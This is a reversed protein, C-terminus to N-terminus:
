AVGEMPRLVPNCVQRGVQLSWTCSSLPNIQPDAPCCGTVLAPTRTDPQHLHSQPHRPERKYPPHRGRCPWTCDQGPGLVRHPPLPWSGPPGKRWGPRGKGRWCSSSAGAPLPHPGWSPNQGNRRLSHPVTPHRDIWIQPKLPTRGEKSPCQPGQTRKWLFLPSTVTLTAVKGPSPASSVASAQPGRPESPKGPGPGSVGCCSGM